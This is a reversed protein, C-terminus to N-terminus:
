EEENSEETSNDSGGATEIGILRAEEFKAKMTPNGRTLKKVTLDDLKENAIRFNNESLRLENKIKELKKITNDIENIATEFHKATLEYNRGFKDKFDYLKREFNTVDINQERVADLERKYDMSKLAANRLLTIMPIFCQPRIVYMKEYRFSVDAIGANYFENDKELLSVLVAYECGKEKRDKDLEKFFHENKHKTATTEMENKMEFMISVIERGESDYDRFIFDGKSGTRADNDKEFYANPFASTRLQSFQIECHQELTEGVMKTSLGTKLDKYLEIERDKNRLAAELESREKIRLTENEALRKDLENKHREESLELQQKYAIGADRLKEAKQRLESLEREHETRAREKEASVAETILQKTQADSTSRLIGLQQEAQAKEQRSIDLQKRLEETEARHRDSLQKEAARAREKEQEVATYVKNQTEAEGSRKVASLEAQLKLKEEDANRLQEKLKDLEASHKRETEREANVAKEREGSLARELEARSEAQAATLKEHLRESLQRDFETNRIQELVNDLESGDIDFEKKCHPCTITM